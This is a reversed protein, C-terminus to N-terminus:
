DITLPKPKLYDRMYRLMRMNSLKSQVSKSLLIDVPFPTMLRIDKLRKVRSIATYIMHPVYEYTDSVYMPRHDFIISSVTAGQTKHVTIASARILPCASYGIDTVWESRFEYRPITVTKKSDYLYFTVDGTKTDYADVEGIQGNHVHVKEKTVINARIMYPVNLILKNNSPWTDRSIIETEEVKLAHRGGIRSVITESSDHLKKPGVIDIEEVVELEEIMRQNYWAASLKEMNKGTSSSLITAGTNRQLELAESVSMEEPCCVKNLTEVALKRQHPDDSTIQLMVNQLEPDEASRMLENPTIYLFGPYERELCSPVFEKTKRGTGGGGDHPIPPLQFPDGIIIPYLCGFEYLNGRVEACVRNLNEFQRQSIMSVEDIILIDCNIVRTPPNKKVADLICDFKDLKMAESGISLFSALTMANELRSAAAGTSAVVYIKLEPYEERIKNVIYAIFASKGSGPPGGIVAGINRLIESVTEITQRKEEVIAVVDRMIKEEAKKQWKNLVLEPKSLSM